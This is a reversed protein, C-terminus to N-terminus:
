IFSMAILWLHKAESLMVRYKHDCRAFRVFV